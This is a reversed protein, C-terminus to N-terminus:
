DPAHRDTQRYRSTGNREDVLLQSRGSRHARQEKRALTTDTPPFQKVLYNQSGKGLPQGDYPHAELWQAM